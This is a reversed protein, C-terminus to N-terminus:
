SHLSQIPPEYRSLYQPTKIGERMICQIGTPADGRELLWRIWWLVNRRGHAEITVGAVYIFFIEKSM